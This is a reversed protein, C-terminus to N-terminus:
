HEKNNKIMEPNLVYGTKIKPIEGGMILLIVLTNVVDHDIDNYRNNCYVQKIDKLSLDYKDEPDLGIFKAMCPHGDDGIDDFSGLKFHTTGVENTCSITYEIVYPFQNIAQFILECIYTKFGLIDYYRKSKIFYLTDNNIESIVQLGDGNKCTKLFHFYGFPNDFNEFTSDM